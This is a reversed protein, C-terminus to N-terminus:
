CTAHVDENLRDHPTMYCATCIGACSSGLCCVTSVPRATYPGFLTEIGERGQDLRIMTVTQLTKHRHGDLRDRQWRSKSQTLFPVSNLSLAFRRFKAQPRLLKREKVSKWTASGRRASKAKQDEKWCEETSIQSTSVRFFM